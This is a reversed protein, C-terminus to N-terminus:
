VDEDFGLQRDKRKEYWKHTMKIAYYLGLFVVVGVVAGGIVSGVVYGIAEGELKWTEPATTGPVATVCSGLALQQITRHSIPNYDPNNSCHINASWVQRDIYCDVFTLTGDDVYSQDSSGTVCARTVTWDGKAINAFINISDIVYSDLGHPISQSSAINLLVDMTCLKATIEGAKLSVGPTDMDLIIGRITDTQKTIGTTNLHTLDIRGGHMAIVSSTIDSCKVFSNLVVSHVGTATSDVITQCFSAYVVCNQTFNLSKGDFYVAVGKGPSDDERFSIAAFQSLSVSLEKNKGSCLIVGGTLDSSVNVEIDCFICNQISICPESDDNWIEQDDFKEGQIEKCSRMYAIPSNLFQVFDCHHIKSFSNFACLNSFRSFKSKALERYKESSFLPSPSYSGGVTLRFVTLNLISVM